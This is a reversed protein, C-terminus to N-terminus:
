PNRWEGQSEKSKLFDQTVYVNNIIYLKSFTKLTELVNSM